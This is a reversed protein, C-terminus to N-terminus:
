IAFVFGHYTENDEKQRQLREKEKEKFEAFKEYEDPDNLLDEFDEFSLNAYPSKMSEILEQREKENRQNYDSLKEIEIWRRPRTETEKGDDNIRFKFKNSIINAMEKKKYNIMKKKHGKMSDVM